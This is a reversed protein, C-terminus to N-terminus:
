RNKKLNIPLIVTTVTTPLHYASTTADYIILEDILNISYRLRILVLLVLAPVHFHDFTKAM